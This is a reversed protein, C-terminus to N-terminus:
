KTMPFKFSNGIVFYFTGIRVIYSFPRSLELGRNWGIQEICYLVVRIVIVTDGSRIPTVGLYDEILEWYFVELMHTERQLTEQGVRRM